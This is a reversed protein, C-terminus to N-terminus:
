ELVTGDNPSIQPRSRDVHQKLDELKEEYIKLREALISTGAAVQEIRASVEAVQANFKAVGEEVQRVLREADDLGSGLADVSQRLQYVERDTAELDRKEAYFHLESKDALDPHGHSPVDDYM